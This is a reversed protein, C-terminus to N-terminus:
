GLKIIAFFHALAAILVFMHWGVHMFPKKSAYLATGVTYLLGGTVLLWVASGNLLHLKPILILGLWGFGIYLLFGTIKMDRPLVFVTSITIGFVAFLWVCALIIAQTWGNYLSIVFPTFSGAILLFISGHDLARFVKKARTFKLAHYLTSSLMLIFLSLVYVTFGIKFTNPSVLTLLGIILGVICAIAGLGHTVSNFVEEVIKIAQKNKRISEM